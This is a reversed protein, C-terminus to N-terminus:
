AIYGSCQSIDRRILKYFIEFTAPLGQLSLSERLSFFLAHRAKAEAAPHSPSDRGLHRFQQCRNGEITWRRRCLINWADTGRDQRYVAPQVRSDSGTNRGDFSGHQGIVLDIFFKNIWIGIM